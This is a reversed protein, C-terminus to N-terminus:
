PVVRVPAGHNNLCRICMATVKRLSDLAADNGHNHTFATRTKALYEEILLLEEGVSPKNANDWADACRSQYALESVIARETETNM